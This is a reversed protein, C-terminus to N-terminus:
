AQVISDGQVEIAVPPLPKTAPGNVVAGDLSYKSGHCPCNITGDAIENVLCGAHTCVASLGKFDGAVPQTVVVEGVIVGSGVPVDATPTLAAGAAASTESTSESSASSDSSASSSSGSGSDGSSCAALTVAAAGVGFGAIVTKRPIKVDDIDM